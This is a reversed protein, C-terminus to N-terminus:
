MKAQRKPQDGNDGETVIGPFEGDKYRSPGGAAVFQENYEKKSLLDPYYSVAGLMEAGYGVTTPIVAKDDGTLRDTDVALKRRAMTPLSSLQIMFPTANNISTNGTPYQQVYPTELEGYATYRLSPDFPIEPLLKGYQDTLGRGQSVAEDMKKVKNKHKFLFKLVDNVNDQSLEEPLGMKNRWEDFEANIDGATNPGPVYNKLSDIIKVMNKSVKPNTIPWQMNKENSMRSAINLLGFMFGSEETVQNTSLIEKPASRYIWNDVVEFERMWSKYQDKTMAQTGSPFVNFLDYQADSQRDLISKSGNKTEGMQTDEWKQEVWTSTGDDNINWDSRTHKVPTKSGSGSRSGRLGYNKVDITYEETVGRKALQKPDGFYMDTHNNVWGKLARDYGEAGIMRGEAEWVKNFERTLSSQVATQYMSRCRDHLIEEIMTTQIETSYNSQKIKDIKQKYKGSIKGDICDQNIKYATQEYDAQYYNENFRVSNMQMPDVIGDHVDSMYTGIDYFGFADEEENKANLIEVQKEVVQDEAFARAMPESFATTFDAMAQNGEVGSGISAYLANVQMEMAARIDNSYKSYGKINKISERANDTITKAIERQHKRKEAMMSAYTDMVQKNRVNQNQKALESNKDLELLFEEKVGGPTINPPAVDFKREKYLVPVISM